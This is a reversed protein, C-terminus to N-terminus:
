QDAEPLTVYITTGVELTSEAWIQGGLDRVVEWCALLGLGTGKEGVTGKTSENLQGKFLSKVKDQSIGVGKDKISFHIDADSKKISLQIEQYPYSFKIANALLNRFLLSINAEEAKIFLRHMEPRFSITLNKDEAVSEYLAIQNNIVKILDIHELQVSKKEGILKPRAWILLSDLTNSLNTVHKKIKNTMILFEEKSVSQYDLLVLLGSLTNLPSKLDHALISFMDKQANQNDYLIKNKNILKENLKKIKKSYFFLIVTGILFIFGVFILFKLLFKYNSAKIEYLENEKELKEIELQKIALDSKFQYGSSILKANKELSQDHYTDYIEYYELAKKYNGQQKYIKHLVLNAKIKPILQPQSGVLVLAQHAYKFAEIINQQEFYCEALGASSLASKYNNRLKESIELAQTYHFFSNKFEKKKMYYKGLLLEFDSEKDKFNNKKMIKLLINKNIEFQDYQNNSLNMELISILISTQLFEDGAINAINLSKELYEAAYEYQKSKMFLLGIEHYCDAIGLQHNIQQRIQLSRQLYEMSKIYEGKLIYLEGLTHTSFGLDFLQNFSSDIRIAIKLYYIASDIQNTNKYSIGLNNYYIGVRASDNNQLKIKIGQHYKKIAQFYMGNADYAAAITNLIFDTKLDVKKSIEEAKKAYYLMEKYKGQDYLVWAIDNITGIQLITDAKEQYIELTKQGYQLAEELKGIQSLPNIYNAYVEALLDQARLKVAIQEAKRLMQISTDPYERQHIVSIAVLTKVQEATNPQAQLYAKHLSDAPSQQGFVTMAALQCILIWSLWRYSHNM